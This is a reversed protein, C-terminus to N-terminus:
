MLNSSQKSDWSISQIDSAEYSPNTDQKINRGTFVGIVFVLAMISLGTAWRVGLNKTKYVKFKLPTHQIEKKIFMLKDLELKLNKDLKLANDIELRLNSGADGILYALLQEQTFNKKKM